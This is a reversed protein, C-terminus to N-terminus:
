PEAPSGPEPPEGSDGPDAPDAPEGPGAPGDPEGPAGPEPPKGAEGPAESGHAKGIISPAPGFRSGCPPVLGFRPNRRKGGTYVASVWGWRGTDSKTLAWNRSHRTGSRIMGGNRQCLVPHAGKFVNGVVRGKPGHVPAGRPFSACTVTRAAKGACPESPPPVAGVSDAAVASLAFTALALTRLSRRTRQLRPTARSRVPTEHDFM